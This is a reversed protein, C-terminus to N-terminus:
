AKILGFISMKCVYSQVHQMRKVEREMEMFMFSPTVRCFDDLREILYERMRFKFEGLSFDKPIESGFNANKFM